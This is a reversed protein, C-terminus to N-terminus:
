NNSEWLLYCRITNRLQEQDLVVYSTGNFSQTRGKLTIMKVEDINISFARRSSALLQSISMDTRIHRAAQEMIQPLMFITKVQRVEKSLATLFSQQRMMRGFDGQDDNRYRVYGLAQEGMLRQRGPKLHFPFPEDENVHIMEKEVDITVGGLVDVIDAFGRFNTYVYHDMPVGLFHEVTAIMLAIEGRYAMAHNLKDMGRGPIEVRTDRPISILAVEDTDENISMVMITDARAAEHRVQDIGLILINTINRSKDPNGPESPELGIGPPGPPNDHIRIWVSWGWGAVALLIVLVVAPAVSFRREKPLKGL